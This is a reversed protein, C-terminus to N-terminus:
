AILKRHAHISMLIGFGALLTIVATGGYSVFPLPVGVVPLIGAVMGANVFVYVFFALTLAGALLRSYSDTAQSALYFSRGLIFLYLTLLIMVGILGFEESYAAIIFDTHGEPLFDLHSQSGLLWGKGFWGGSGIATKSQIINWGNGLPDSEPNLLTLIRQRQYDHMFHWAVPALAAVLAAFLGMLWWPLGGLFLVFLGSSAVLIGTGLDPQRAILIVPPGILALVTGIVRLSPPLVKTSLYWAIMMPMALKMFESPQLSTVGPIKLWRKAGLRTEGHVVVAMLLAMAIGYFWPSIAAYTRPPVQAMAVMTAFGLGFSALQKLTLAMDQGSASYVELLGLAATVLLAAFLPADLHLLTWLDRRNGFAAGTNPAHRLFRSQPQRM